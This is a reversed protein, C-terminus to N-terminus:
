NVAKNMAFMDTSIALYRSAKTGQGACCLHLNHWVLYVMSISFLNTAKACNLSHNDAFIDDSRAVDISVKEGQAAHCLKVFTYTIGICFFKSFSSLKNFQCIKGYQQKCL